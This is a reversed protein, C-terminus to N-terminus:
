LWDPLLSPDLVPLGASAGIPARFPTGNLTTPQSDDVAWGRLKQYARLAARFRDQVDGRHGLMNLMVEDLTGRAVIHHFGCIHKQGSRAVRAITQLYRELSWIMTYWIIQHGGFQLNVGHAAAQPHLLLVPIKGQNWEEIIKGPNKCNGGLTSFPIKEDALRKTIRAYDAKFYYTVIVSGPIMDILEVLKDLKADHMPETQQDGVQDRWYMFGNAIQWCLMTKAGGNAAIVFDKELEILAEKEMKDYYQRADNPLEVFHLHSPPVEGKSADGITEPLVGYAAGDLEVTIDAILEHIKEPAGDKPQWEPRVELEEDAVEWKFTHEAVQATKFFFRDRYTDFEKHLRAGSDVIYMQPWLHLLSTPAPTGTAIVTYKFRNPGVLILNGQEDRLARGDPGKQAHRDGYNTLLKFRKGTHVKFVSSEDVVLMDFVSWDGRIEKHLWELGEPNILYVDAPRHLKFRRHWPSGRLLSFTLDTTHSWIRAEQRWVTECVLIPAVVLVPKTLRGWTILDKIATLVIATKGLGMDLILPTGADPTSTFIKHAAAMQYPRMPAGDNLRYPIMM